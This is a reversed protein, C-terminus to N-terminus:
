YVNLIFKMWPFSDCTRFDTSESITVSLSNWAYGVYQGNGARARINDIHNVFQKTLRKETQLRSFRIRRLQGSSIRIGRCRGCARRASKYSGLVRFHCKSLWRDAIPFLTSGLTPRSSRWHSPNHPPGVRSKLSAIATKRTLGMM